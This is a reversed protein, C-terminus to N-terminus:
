LVRVGEVGAKKEDSGAGQSREGREIQKEEVGKMLQGQNGSKKQDSNPARSVTLHRRPFDRDVQCGSTENQQEAQDHEIARYGFCRPTKIKPLQLRRRRRNRRGRLSM